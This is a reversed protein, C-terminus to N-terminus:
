IYMTPPPSLSTSTVIHVHYITFITIDIDSYTYLLEQDTLDADYIPELSTSIKSKKWIYYHHGTAIWHYGTAISDGEMDLLPIWHSDLPTWHSDLPIWHYGTATWHYGTTDM